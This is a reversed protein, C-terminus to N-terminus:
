RIISFNHNPATANRRRGSQNSVRKWVRNPTGPSPIVTQISDSVRSICKGVEVSAFDLNEHADEFDVSM